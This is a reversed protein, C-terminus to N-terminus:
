RDQLLGLVNGDPDTVTAVLRGGSRATVGQVWRSLSRFHGQLCGGRVPLQKRVVGASQVFNASTGQGSREDRRGHHKGPSKGM